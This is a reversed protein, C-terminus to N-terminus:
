RIRSFSIRTNSAADFLQLSDGSVQYQLTAAQLDMNCTENDPGTKADHAAQLLALSNPTVQAPVRASAVLDNNPFSCQASVAAVNSQNVYVLFWITLDGQQVMPQDAVWAGYIQNDVNPFDSPTAVPRRSINEANASSVIMLTAAALCFLVSLGKVLKMSDGKTPYAIRVLERKPDILHEPFSLSSINELM